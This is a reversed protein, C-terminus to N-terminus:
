KCPTVWAKGVRREESTPPLAEFPPTQGPGPHGALAVTSIDPTSYPMPWNRGDHQSIRADYGPERSPDKRRVAATAPPQPPDAHSTMATRQPLADVSRRARRATMAPRPRYRPPSRLTGNCRLLACPCTVRGQSVQRERDWTGSVDGPWLDSSCVDSSWDSIRM